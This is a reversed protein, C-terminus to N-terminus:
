RCLCPMTLRLFQDHLEPIDQMYPALIQGHKTLYVTFADSEWRGKVKMVDFPVGRLLYELTAGIRIGHGQLPDLGAAKAAENVVREFIKKSLPRHATSMSSKKKAKKNPIYHYAFLHASAPPDNLELHHALATEPDTDGNQKSWSVDEGSSSVKTHPLHFVTSKLGNRDSETRIDSRKVHLMPDFTSLSPVTFEGLRAAAYFTTTLCAYVAAHLPLSLNLQGRVTRIFEPTCPKRKKRVSSPPTMKGAAELLAKLENESMHWNVGHIIHWARIGYMYNSITDGSYGGALASIFAHIVIPPAPAREAEPIGREDCFVHFILLGSGYSKLTSDRWARVM